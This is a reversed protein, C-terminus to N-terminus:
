QTLVDKFNNILSQYFRDRTAEQGPSFYIGPMSNLEIIWPRVHDDFILDITYIKKPFHAFAKRVADIVPNLSLPLREREIIEMSGGQAVNALLSGEKPIRIYSYILEDNIFVLRLDHYSPTIGPIGHSSDIFEQLILPYDLNMGILKQSTEIIVGEGGSGREPKVVFYKGPIKALALTLERNTTVRYYPKFHQPILQSVANKDRIIKTFAPHNIFPYREALLLKKEYLDGSESTDAKDYIADIKIGTNIAQWRGNQFGIAQTFMNREVDYWDLPARLLRIGNQQALAYLLEYAQRYGDSILAFPDSGKPLDFLILVTPHPLSAM